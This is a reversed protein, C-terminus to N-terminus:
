YSQRLRRHLEQKLKPIEHDLSDDLISDYNTCEHKYQNFTENMRPSNEMLKDAMYKLKSRRMRQWSSKAM